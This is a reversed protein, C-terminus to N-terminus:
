ESAFISMEAKAQGNLVHLQDELMLLKSALEKFPGHRDKLSEHREQIANVDSNVEDIGICGIWIMSTYFHLRCAAESSDKNQDFRKILEQLTSHLTKQLETLSPRVAPNNEM